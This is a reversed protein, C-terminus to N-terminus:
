FLVIEYTFYLIYWLFKCIKFLCLVNEIFICGIKSQPIELFFQKVVNLFRKNM